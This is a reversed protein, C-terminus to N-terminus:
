ASHPDNEPIARQILNVVHIDADVRGEAFRYVHKAGIQSESLFVPEEPPSHVVLTLECFDVLLISPIAQTEGVSIIHDDGEDEPINVISNTHQFLCHKMVCLYM